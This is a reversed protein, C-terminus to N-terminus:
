SPKSANQQEIEARIAAVKKGFLLQMVALLGFSPVLVQWAPIDLAGKILMSGSAILLLFVMLRFARVSIRKHVYQGM